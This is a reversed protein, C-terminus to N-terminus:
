HWKYWDRFIQCLYFGLDGQVERPPLENTEAAASKHSHGSVKKCSVADSIFRRDQQHNYQYQGEEKESKVFFVAQRQFLKQPM